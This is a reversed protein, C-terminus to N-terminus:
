IWAKFDKFDLGPNQTGRERDRTVTGAYKGGKPDQVV